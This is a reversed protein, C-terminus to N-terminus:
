FKISVATEFASKLEFDAKSVAFAVDYITLIVVNVLQLYDLLLLHHKM